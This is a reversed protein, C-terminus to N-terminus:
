ALFIDLVIFIIIKLIRVVLAAKHCREGYSM